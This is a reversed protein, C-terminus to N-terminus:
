LHHNRNSYSKKLVYSMSSDAINYKTDITYYILYKMYMLSYKILTSM